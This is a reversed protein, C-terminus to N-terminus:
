FMGKGFDLWWLEKKVIHVEGWVLVGVRIVMMGECGCVEEEVGFLDSFQNRGCVFM